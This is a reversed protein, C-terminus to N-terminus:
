QAKYYLKVIWKSAFYFMVFVIAQSKNFMTLSVAMIKADVLFLKLCNWICVDLM